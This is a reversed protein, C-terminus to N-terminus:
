CKNKLIIFLKSYHLKWKKVFIGSIGKTQPSTMNVSVQKLLVKNAFSRTM